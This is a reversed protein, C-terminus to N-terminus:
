SIKKRLADLIIETILESFSIGSIRLIAGISTYNEDESLGCQANAELVYLMGNKEHQRIDIRTYGTGKLCQFVDLSLNNIKESLDPDCPFYNFLFEGQDLETEEEYTEWLRDYSLIRETAPIKQNFVREVPSYTKICYPQNYSGTLLSTFEKGPIFEELIFGDIDLKWGKYGSQLQELVLKADDENSVVNKIGLGMSGGSVAPKLILPSSLRKFIDSLNDGSSSVIDWEPTNIGFENFIKKMPIKSTTIEYFYEDAGTFILGQNKLEKIVEIGPAGNVEDGDCLNIILPEKPFSEAKIFKLQDVYSGQTIYKWKWEFGIESFCRFYEDHSQDFDYYYGIESDM